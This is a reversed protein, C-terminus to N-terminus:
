ENFKERLLTSIRNSLTKVNRFPSYKQSMVKEDTLVIMIGFEEEIKQEVAVVLSVLGMSDLNGLRDFLVAGNSKELRQEKPLQQNIEDIASFITQIIREDKM